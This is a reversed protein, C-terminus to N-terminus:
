ILHLGSCNTKVIEGVPEEFDSCGEDGQWETIQEIETDRLGCDWYLPLGTGDCWYRLNLLRLSTSVVSM